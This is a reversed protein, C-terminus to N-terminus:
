PANPRTGRRRPRAAPLDADGTLETVPIMPRGFKRVVKVRGDAMCREFQRRSIGAAKVAEEITYLVRPIEASQDTM